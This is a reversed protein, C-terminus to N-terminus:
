NIGIQIQSWPIRLNVINDYIQEPTDDNFPPIGVLFEFLICGLSWLDLSYNTNSKGLIIEPAMYDPTGILRAHRKSNKKKTHLDDRSSHVSFKSDSIIEEDEEDHDKEGPSRQILEFKKEMVKGKLKLNINSQLNNIKACLQNIAQIKEQYFNTEGFANGVQIKKSLGTESLGFDTLKAHGKKDLLINDPKLDRHVIGLSHLYELALVIEAIYFRTVDEDLANYNYLIDGFDGGIMYEMVFCICTEYTFTFVARVVFDEQALGFVKDEKRLNELEKTNKMFKETLNIVKMAYLDNTAKRKVLWVRGFAGKSIMKLPEFDDMGIMPHSDDIKKSYDVHSDSHYGRELSTDMFQLSGPSGKGEKQIFNVDNEHFLDEAFILTANKPTQIDEKVLEKESFKIKDNLNELNNENKCFTQKRLRKENTGNMVTRSRSRPTGANTSYNYKLFESEVRSLPLDKSLTPYIEINENQIEECNKLSLTRSQNEKELDTQNQVLILNEKSFTPNFSNIIEDQPKKGIIPTFENQPLHTQDFDLSSKQYTIKLEEIEVNDLTGISETHKDLPIQNQNQNLILSSNDCLKVSIKGQNCEQYDNFNRQFDIGPRNLIIESSQSPNFFAPTLEEISESQPLKEIKRNSLSTKEDINDLDEISCAQLPGFNATKKKSFVEKESNFGPSDEGGEYVISSQSSVNRKTAKFSNIVNKLEEGSLNIKKSSLTQPSKSGFSDSNSNHSELDQLELRQYKSDRKFKSKELKIKQKNPMLPSSEILEEQVTQPDSM